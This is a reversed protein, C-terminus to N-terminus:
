RMLMFVILATLTIFQFICVGLLWKFHKSSKIDQTQQTKIVEDVKNESDKIKELLMWLLAPFFDHESAQGKNLNEVSPLLKEELQQLIREKEM